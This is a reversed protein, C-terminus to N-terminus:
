IINDVQVFIDELLKRGKPTIVWDIPEIGQIKCIDIENEILLRFTEADVHNFFIMRSIVQIRGDVIALFVVNFKDSTAVKMYHNIIQETVEM